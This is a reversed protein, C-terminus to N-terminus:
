RRFFDVEDRRVTKVIYKNDHSRFFLMGSKGEGVSGGQLPRHGDGVSELYKERTIYFQNRISQFVRPCFDEINTAVRDM